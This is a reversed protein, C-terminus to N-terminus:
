GGVAEVLAAAVAEAQARVDRSQELMTAETLSALVGGDCPDLDGPFGGGPVGGGPFGGKANPAADPASPPLPAGCGIAAALLFFRM